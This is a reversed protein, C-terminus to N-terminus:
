IEKKKKVSRIISQITDPIFDIIKELTHTNDDLHLVKVDNDLFALFAIPTITLTGGAGGGFPNVPEGRKEKKQDVGGSLYGCKVRAVPIVCIGNYIIEKGLIISVDCLERISHMAIELLKSVQNQKEEM